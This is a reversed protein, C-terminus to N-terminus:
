FGCNSADPHADPVCGSLTGSTCDPQLTEGVPNAHAFTALESGM